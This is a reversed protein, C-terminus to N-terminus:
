LRRFSRRWFCLLALCGAMLVFASPEPADVFADDVSLGVFGPGSAVIQISITASTNSGSNWIASLLNWPVTDSRLLCDPCVIHNGPPLIGVGNVFIEMHSPDISYGIVSSSDNSFYFGINYDTGPTVSITQTLIFPVPDIGRVIGFAAFDGTRVDVVNPPFATPALPTGATAVGSMATGGVTWGSFDGTEFGPNVLLNAHSAAAMCLSCLTVRLKLKM